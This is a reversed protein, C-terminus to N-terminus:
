GASETNKNFKENIRKKAEELGKENINDLKNEMYDSYAEFQDTRESLKSDLYDFAEGTIYGNERLGSLTGSINLYEHWNQDGWENTFGLIDFVQENYEINAEHGASTKWDEWKDAINQAKEFQKKLQEQNQITAFTGNLKKSIEKLQKQGENDVDFGIVNVIPNINSEGLKKAAKVPNGECTSVGDSVLYIINTNKKAPYQALDNKAENLALAIPTWGAPNFKNLADNFKDKNYHQLNYVLKSSSCSLEKDSDSGTGKHGYVRLGVKAKGPLSKAFSRISEKASEMKTQEGADGAMSGSADIIIEVNLNQKFHFRKDKIEPSGFRSYKLEKVLKKPSPYDEHFLFVMKRWYADMREKSVGEELKPFKKFFELVEELDEERHKNSGSINYDSLKGNPQNAIEEITQPVEATDLLKDWGYKNNEKGTDEGSSEKKVEKKEINKDDSQNGMEDTCAGLICILLATLIVLYLKKTM